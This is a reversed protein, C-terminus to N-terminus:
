FVTAQPGGFVDSTNLDPGRWPDPLFSPRAPVDVDNDSARLHTAVAWRAAANRQETSWASLTEFSPELGVVGLLYQLDGAIM